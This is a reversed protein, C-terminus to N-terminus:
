VQGTACHAADAAAAGPGTGTGETVAVAEVPHYIRAHRNVKKQEAFMAQCGNAQCM